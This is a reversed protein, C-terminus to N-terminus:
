IEEEQIFIDKCPIIYQSAIKSLLQAEGLVNERDDKQLSSIRMRKIAHILDFQDIAKFVESTRGKGIQQTLKYGHVFPISKEM